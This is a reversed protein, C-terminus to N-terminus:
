GLSDAHSITVDLRKQIEQFECWTIEYRKSNDGGKKNESGILPELEKANILKCLIIARMEGQEQNDDADQESYIPGYCDQAPYSVSYQDAFERLACQLSQVTQGFVFLLNEPIIEQLLRSSVVQANAIADRLLEYGIADNALRGLHSMDKIPKSVVDAIEGPIIEVYILVKKIPRRSKRSGIFARLLSPLIAM